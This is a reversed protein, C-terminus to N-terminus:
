SPRPVPCVWGMVPDPRYRKMLRAVLRAHRRSIRPARVSSRAAARADATRRSRALKLVEVGRGHDAVWVYGYRYYPAWSVGGDPRYYAVQTPNRPDSVDVFRTGQDYWSYALVGNSIDFYHASCFKAAPDTGEEGTPSWYSVTQLRFPNQPTSRWAEGEYSGSLSGIVFRAAQECTPTGNAEETAMLLNTQAGRGRQQIIPRLANHM